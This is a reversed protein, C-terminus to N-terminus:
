STMTAVNLTKDLVGFEKMLDAVRQLRTSDVTTPYTGIGVIAATQSNIKTYTPLTKEVTARNAALEQARQLARHFAASTKPNEEFFRQTSVYGGIPFGETAGSATDLVQRAGLQMKAASVFPEVLWAADISGSKLQGVMDPFPVEVFTVSDPDVGDTELVSKIMLTGINHRTNVGIKKGALDKPGSIGSSPLAVIPLLGPGAQYGESQVHIKIGKAGKADAQADTQFFSVYNGFTIDLAGSALKPVAEAGGQITVPEVTLGEDEFFGNKQAIFVAVDDIIPIVGVKLTTKELGGGTDASSGTWGCAAALTVVVAGALAARVSRCTRTM